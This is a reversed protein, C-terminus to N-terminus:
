EQTLNYTVDVKFVFGSPYTISGRFHLVHEGPELPKLMVWYGDAVGFKDSGEPIGCINPGFPAVGPHLYEAPDSPATWYFPEYTKVRHDELMPISRGDLEAEIQVHYNPSDYARGACAALMNPDTYTCSKMGASAVCVTNVIPFLLPKRETLACSRTEVGGSNGALFFVDETQDYHCDHGLLPSVSRPAEHAWQWWRAAWDEMSTGYPAANPPFVMDTGTKPGDPGENAALEGFGPDDIDNVDEDLACGGLVIAMAAMAAMSQRLKM